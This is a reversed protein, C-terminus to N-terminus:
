AQQRDAEQLSNQVQVHYDNITEDPKQILDAFNICMKQASYNPELAKIFEKKVSDWNNLNVDDDQLSEWWVIEKDRLCMYFKIINRTNDWAAITTAKNIREIFPCAAITDKDKCGYYLPLDTLREYSM